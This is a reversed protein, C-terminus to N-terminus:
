VKNLGKCSECGFLALVRSVKRQFVAGAPSARHDRQHEARARAPVGREARHRHPGAEAAGHAIRQDELRPCAPYGFSYRSGQYGQKFLMQLERADRGAIGLESRIQKHMYEALAEATEVGLGHLFLYQQYQNAQFWERAVESVNRGATVIHFAVVDSCWGSVRGGSIRSAGSPRKRRARSPSAPPESIPDGPAGSRRSQM